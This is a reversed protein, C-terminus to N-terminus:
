FTGLDSNSLGSANATVKKTVPDIAFQVTASDTLNISPLPADNVGSAYPWIQGQADLWWVVNGQADIYQVFDEGHSEFRGAAATKTPEASM